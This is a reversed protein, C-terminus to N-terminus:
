FCFYHILFVSIFFFLLYRRKASSRLEYSLSKASCHAKLSHDTIFRQQLRAPVDYM